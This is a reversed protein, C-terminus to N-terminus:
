DMPGRGWIPERLHEVVPPGPMLGMWDSVNLRTGNDTAKWMCHRIPHDSSPHSKVALQHSVNSMPVVPCAHLTKYSIHHVHM